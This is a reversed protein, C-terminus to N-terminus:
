HPPTPRGSPGSSVTSIFLDELSPRVPQFRRILLGRGRLSDIVATAAAVDLTEVRLVGRAPEYVVDLTEGTGNGSFTGALKAGTATPTLDGGVPFRLGTESLRAPEPREVLEIEYREEGIALDDMTGQRVVKGEVMIAVRDCILELEGLLHSNVFVGAGAARQEILVDRIDRRAVPDVGDTPEDLIILDPQAAMAQALGIRQRMGKSYTGVKRNAAEAMGVRDILWGARKRREGRPLGGLASFFEVIQRGSLYPPFRHQEPLYGVRAMTQRRGVREGLLTGELRTPRVLGLLIKVITSKGAGNPGLLGFIEGRGVALDVGQLAHVPKAAFVRKLLAPRYVKEVHRVDIALDGPSSSATTAKM